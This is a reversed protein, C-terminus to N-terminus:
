LYFRNPTLAALSFGGSPPRRAPERTPQIRREASVGCGSILGSKIERFHPSADWLCFVAGSPIFSRAPHLPVLRSINRREGSLPAALDVRVRDVVAGAFQRVATKSRVNHGWPTVRSSHGRRAVPYKGLCWRSDPTGGLASKLLGGRCTRFTGVLLSSSHPSAGWRADTHV